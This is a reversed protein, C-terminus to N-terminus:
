IIDCLFMHPSYSAPVDKTVYQRVLRSTHAPGNDETISMFQKTELGPTKTQHSWAFLASSMSVMQRQVLFEHHVLVNSDFVMTLTGQVNVINILSQWNLRTLIGGSSHSLKSTNGWRSRCTYNPIMASSLLVKTVFKFVIFKVTVFNM